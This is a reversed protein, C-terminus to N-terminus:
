EGRRLPWGGRCLRCIRDRPTARRAGVQPRSSRIVPRRYSGASPDYEYRGSKPGGDLPGLCCYPGNDYGLSGSVLLKPGIKGQLGSIHEKLSGRREADINVDAVVPLGWRRTDNIKRGDVEFSIWEWFTIVGTIRAVSFRCLSNPGVCNMRIRSWQTLGYPRFQKLFELRSRHSDVQETEDFVFINKPLAMVRLEASRKIPSSTLASGPRSVFDGAFVGEGEIPLVVVLVIIKILAALAAQAWM